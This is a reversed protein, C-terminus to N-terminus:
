KGYIEVVKPDPSEYADGVEELYLPYVVDRLHGMICSRCDKWRPDEPAKLLVEKLRDASHSHAIKSFMGM